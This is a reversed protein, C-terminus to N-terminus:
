RRLAQAFELQFTCANRRFRGLTVGSLRFPLTGWRDAAACDDTPSLFYNTRM